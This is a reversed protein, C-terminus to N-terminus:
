FRNKSSIWPRRATHFSPFIDGYSTANCGCGLYCDSVHRLILLNTIFEPIHLASFLLLLKEQIFGFFNSLLSSPYNAGAITLWFILAFFIFMIPIGFKKSTLIKDLKRDRSNYKLSEFTCVKKRIDEASSVVSM